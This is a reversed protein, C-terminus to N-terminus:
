SRLLIHNKQDFLASWLQERRSTAATCKIVASVSGQLNGKTKKINCSLNTASLTMFSMRYSCAYFPQVQFYIRKNFLGYQRFNFHM